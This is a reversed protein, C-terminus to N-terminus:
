QRATLGAMALLIGVIWFRVILKPESIGGLHFHHHIPAVRFIRQQHRWKYSAVQLMVSLAEIVFVGGILALWLATRSFVSVAALACGLGLAGVDGLYVSAPFSNFWLFGVCAGSLAACWAAIARPTAGDSLAWLGVAALAIAVCGAALGDMGDTLNVAHACGAVVFMALPIWGWGVDLSRSLWPLELAREHAPKVWMAYGLGAGVAMATLLKPAARLGLANQGRFKLVDDLLGVAGVGLIAALVWWGDMHRLGGGAAAVAAGVGLVFLGGMTPTRPKAEQRALLPPCDEYRVPAVVQWRSLQRIAARGVALSAGAGVLFVLAADALSQAM